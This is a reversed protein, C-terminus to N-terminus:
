GRWVMRVVSSASKRTKRRLLRSTMGMRQGGCRLHLRLGIHEIGCAAVNNKENESQWEEEGCDDDARGGEIENKMTTLGLTEENGGSEGSPCADVKALFIGRRQGAFVATNQELQARLARELGRGVRQDAVAFVIEVVIGSVLAGREGVGSDAFAAHDPLDLGHDILGGRGWEDAKKDSGFVLITLDGIGVVFVGGGALSKTRTPRANRGARRKGLVLRRELHKGMVDGGVGEM